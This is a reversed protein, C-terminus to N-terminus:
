FAHTQLVRDFVFNQPSAGGINAPFAVYRGNGSIQGVQGGFQGGNIVTARQYSGDAAAWIFLDSRGNTDNPVLTASTSTFAIFQGDDSISPSTGPGVFVTTGGLRDHRFVGTTGEPTLNTATSVFVIYRGDPTMGNLSSAGNTQVGGNAVSVRVTSQAHALSPAFAFIFILIALVTRSHNTAM